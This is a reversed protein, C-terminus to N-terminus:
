RNRVNIDAVKEDLIQSVWSEILEVAKEIESQAPLCPLEISVDVRASEFNGLNKTIGGM